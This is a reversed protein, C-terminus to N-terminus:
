DEEFMMRVLEDNACDEEALKKAQLLISTHQFHDGRSDHITHHETCVTNWQLLTPVGKLLLKPHKRFENQPNKWRSFLMMMKCHERPIIQKCIERGLVAAFSSAVRKSELWKKLSQSPQPLIVTTASLDLGSTLGLEGKVCDPCWSDGTDPQVSGCFLIFVGGAKDQCEEAAQLVSDIGEVSLREM